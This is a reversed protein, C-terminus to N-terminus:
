SGKEEDAGRLAAAKTEEVMPDLTSLSIRSYTAALVFIFVTMLVVLLLGWTFSGIVGDGLFGDGATVLLVTYVTLGLATIALLLNLLRRRTSVLKRFEPSSEIAEWDPAPSSPGPDAAHSM